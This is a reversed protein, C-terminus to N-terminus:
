FDNFTSHKNKIVNSEISVMRTESSIKFIFKLNVDQPSMRIVRIITEIDEEEVPVDIEIPKPNQYLAVVKDM